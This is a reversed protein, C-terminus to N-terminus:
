QGVPVAEIVLKRGFVEGLLDGKKTAATVEADAGGTVQCTVAIREPSTECTLGVVLNLHSRDLGDAVRLIGALIRVINRDEPCLSAFHDHRAQPLAKRHYRAVSAVVLHEREDFPLGLEARIMRLSEKHHAKQGGAWGVDHLIGAAQLLFREDEGLGSLGALEDFLVLALRTVQHSHGSEYDMAGAAELVKAARPEDDKRRPLPPPVEHTDAPETRVAALGKGAVLSRALIEPLGVERMRAAARDMDYAVRREQTELGGDVLDLLTYCARHPKVCSRGASGPNVFWVGDVERTFQIHSHGFAILDADAMRALERRRPEPTNPRLAEGVSAPSGHVLLVRTGEVEFRLERPLSRLYDLNEASLAECTWRSVLYKEIRTRRFWREENRAFDLIRLDANGLISEAGASRLCEVTENPFAGFDVLDGLIWFGQAGQARADALVAEVAPFNAHLDALLAVRM